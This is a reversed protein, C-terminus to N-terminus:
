VLVSFRVQNRWSMKQIIPLLLDDVKAENWGLEERLFSLEHYALM